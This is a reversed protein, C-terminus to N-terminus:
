AIELAARLGCDCTPADPDACGEAACDFRHWLFPLLETATPLVRRFGGDSLLRAVMEPPDDEQLLGIVSKIGRVEAYTLPESM